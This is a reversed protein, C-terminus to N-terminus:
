QVAVGNRCLHMRTTKLIALSRERYFADTTWTTAKIYPFQLEEMVKSLTEVGHQSAHIYLSPPAYHFSTGRM